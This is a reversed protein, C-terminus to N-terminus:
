KMKRKYLLLGFIIVLIGGIITILVTPNTLIAYGTPLTTKPAVYNIKDYVITSNGFENRCQFYVTKTGPAPSLEWEKISTYSFWDSWNIGDNNLRCETANKASLILTVNRSDTTEDGGNIIITLNIPVSGTMNEQIKPKEEKIFIEPKKVVTLTFNTSLSLEDGNAYITFYRTGVEADEPVSITMTWIKAEGVGLKEKGPTINIWNEVESDEAFVEFNKIDRNGINRVEITFNRTENQRMTAGNPFIALYSKRSDTGRGGGSTAITRPPSQIKVSENHKYTRNNNKIDEAYILVHYKGNKVGSTDFTGYYIQNDITSLSITYNGNEGVFRAKADLLNFYHTINASVNVLDGNADVNVDSIWLIVSNLGGPTGNEPISEGWNDSSNSDDLVNKRELTKGNGDAGWSDDYTVSDILNGLNDTLNITEGSNKLGRTDKCLTSSNVHLALADDSINFYQYVKTGSGGDTIIAYQKPSLIMGKNLYSGNGATGGTYNIYGALLKKGCLEWGSLNISEDTPNYIEIWESYNDGGQETSPNYMIENIKVKPALATFSFNVVASTAQYKNGTLPYFTITINLTKNEGVELNIPLEAGDKLETITKNLISTGNYIFSCNLVDTLNPRGEGNWNCYQNPEIETCNNAFNTSVIIKYITMNGTNTLTTTNWVSDGPLMNSFNFLIDEPNMTFDVQAFVIPLFMIIMGLLFVKTKM